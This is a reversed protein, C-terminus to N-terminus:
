ESSSMALTGGSTLHGWGTEFGVLRKLDEVVEMEMETTAPGGEYAHNNSNTLQAYWYALLAPIGPDKLMQAQYRASGFPISDRNMRDIFQQFEIKLREIFQWKQAQFEATMPMLSTDPFVSRRWEQYQQLGTAILEQLLPVNEGLSGLFASYLFAPESKSM